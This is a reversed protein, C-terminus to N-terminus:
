RRKVGTAPMHPMQLNGAVDYKVIIESADTIFRLQLGASNKSLEWVPKRVDKVARTPLRDYFDKVENPWAQGEM